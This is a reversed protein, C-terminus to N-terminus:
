APPRGAAEAEGQLLHRIARAFRELAEPSLTLPQEATAVPVDIEILGARRSLNVDITAGTLQLDDISYPKGSWPNRFPTPSDPIGDAHEDIHAILGDIGIALAELRERAVRQGRCNLFYTGADDLRLHLDLDPSIVADIGRASALERGTLREPRVADWLSRMAKRIM